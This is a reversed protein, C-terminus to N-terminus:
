GKWGVSSALQRDSIRGGSFSRNRYCHTSDTGGPPAQPRGMDELLPLQLQPAEGLTSVGVGLLRFARGPTLESSLLRWAKELITSESHTVVPLTTQRTFTTFDALRLKVTVTRGQLDKRDLHRAVNGALRALEACLREPDSIDSAFTTEASVSKTVRETQVPEQDKGLARAHISGGRKGFRRVFWDLPQHALQGITEIGEERLRDATKPGIGWQKGVPLPDLFGSEEGPPVAVLGDPKNLDSAIKAVSKITAVGVSLTLGTEAQVRRKLDLAVALPTVGAAVVATIDLYAEDLSLPEVLDTLDHFIAMVQGSVESYRDFRPPVIIGEPCLRAAVSMPMASHVGYKRAEYSATAVVGREEPRGGVLVPKGRLDPRDLQEVAAYFADLDAHLIHRM